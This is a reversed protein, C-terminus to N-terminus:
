ANLPIGANAAEAVSYPIGTRVVANVVTLLKRAVAVIAVKFTKGQARLRRYFDGFPTPGRSATLAAMYLMARVEARGGFVRRKGKHRGSEDAYPALGVLAAIKKGTVRGLEPLSALLTLSVVKGIGPLSQQLEDRAQWDPNNKVAEALERDADDIHRGLWDLHKKLNARVKADVCSSLRNSEMTRMDILQSRRTVLADLVQTQEDPLPRPVPRVAEAFHALVAADIRDTKALVGTAKAFERVRLPNAVAVPIGAKQLARALPVELGGTAEVVILIKDQANEGQANEGQAAHAKCVDVVQAIGAASNAYRFSPGNRFAGDLSDKSVDIGVFVFSADMVLVENPASGRALSRRRGDKRNPKGKRAARARKPRSGHSQEPDVTSSSFSHLSRPEGVIKEVEPSVTQQVRVQMTSTSDLITHRKGM